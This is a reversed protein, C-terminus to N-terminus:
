ITLPFFLLKQVSRSYANRVYLNKKNKEQSFVNLKHREVINTM